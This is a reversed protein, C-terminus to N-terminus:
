ATVLRYTIRPVLARITEIENWFLGVVDCIVLVVTTQGDSLALARAWIPDHAGESIRKDEPDGLGALWQGTAPDPTISEAAVGAQWAVEQAAIPVLAALALLLM